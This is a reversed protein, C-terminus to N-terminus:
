SSSKMEKLTMGLKEDLELSLLENIKIVKAMQKKAKKIKREGMVYNIIAYIGTIILLSVPVNLM